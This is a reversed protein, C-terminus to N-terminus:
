SRRHEVDAYKFIRDSDADDEEHKSKIAITSLMRPNPIERYPGPGQLMLM